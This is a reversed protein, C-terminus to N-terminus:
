EIGRMKLTAVVARHDSPWPRVDKEGVITSSSISSTPNLRAFIYDIRDMVEDGDVFPPPYGPTWTHSYGASTHHHSDIFGEQEIARTVVSWPRDSPTNLDGMILVLTEPDARSKVDELLERVDGMRADTEMRIAADIDGEKIHGDRIAYPTYPEDALHVNYIIIKQGLKSRIEAGRVNVDVVKWERVVSGFERRVWVDSVQGRDWIESDFKKKKEKKERVSENVVEQLAVVDPGVFNVVKAISESNEDCGWVNFTMARIEEPHHRRPPPVDTARKKARWLVLVVLVVLVVVFGM